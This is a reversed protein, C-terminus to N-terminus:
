RRRGRRADADDWRQRALHVLLTFFAALTGIFTATLTASPASLVKAVYAGANQQLFFAFIALLYLPSVYKIVYRFVRPIRMAAGEHALRLGEDVGLVWGFLIVIFTGLLFIGVQGVWFDMVDLAMLDKSFYVVLLAGLATVLGLLTVSARRGLGFGEEIFAIAPQLMSLSSTIAALFLLLFWFFGFLRGVPIYEFIVPLTYFGLGLTSGAVRQIPDPGLFIFAAPITILGGLVVECFENTATATLGSLVIDDRRRLYSAYTLVIGFGVSLSFFIQGAAQLWIEPNALASWITQGEPVKPNWMFGLGNLVNQEPLAPNPTGLTLVRALVVFAIAILAPMAFTCFREIGKSLGRYILYFNLAFM